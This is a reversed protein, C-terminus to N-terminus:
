LSFQIFSITKYSPILSISFFIDGYKLNVIAVLAEIVRPPIEDFSAYFRHKKDFINAIKDGHKDYIRSSVAPKYEVLSSIDYKFATLYYGVLVFPSLIGLIFIGLFIKKKM